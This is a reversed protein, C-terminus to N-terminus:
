ALSVSVKIKFGHIEIDTFSEESDCSWNIKTALTESSIFEEFNILANTLNQEGIVNIIIKDTVNFDSEKRFNQIRNIFERAHGEERLSDSIETNLAVTIEGQTEVEIGDKETRRLEIDQYLIDHGLVTKTAGNELERIEELTLSEIIKSANRMRKGFVKGLTRFNAKASIDVLEKENSDFKVTKINLEEKILSSMNEILARKKDDRIVVTLTSLPQRNKINYRSRLVRGMGVVQRILYMEMELDEDILEKNAKPFDCLHVSKEVSGGVGNVVLNRYVADTLFPLFPAM